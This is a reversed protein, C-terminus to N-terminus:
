APDGPTESPASVGLASVGLARATPCPYPHPEPEDRLYAHCIPCVPDNHACRSAPVGCLGCTPTHLILAARVQEVLSIANPMARSWMRLSAELEYLDRDRQDWASM